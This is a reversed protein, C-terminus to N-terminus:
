SSPRRLRQVVKAKRWEGDVIGRFYWQNIFYLFETLQRSNEPIVLLESGDDAQRTNIFNPDYDQAQQRFQEAQQRFQEVPLAGVGGSHIMISMIRRAEQSAIDHVSGSGDFVFPGEAVFGDIMPNTAEQFYVTLDLFGSTNKHSDFYLNGDRYVADLGDSVTLAPGQLSDFTDGNWSLVRESRSLLRTRNLRKFAAVDIVAERTGNHDEYHFDAGVIAKVAGPELQEDTLDGCNTWHEIDEAMLRPFNFKPIYFVQESREPSWAPDFEIPARNLFGETEASFTNELQTEQEEPVRILNARGTPLVGFFKM